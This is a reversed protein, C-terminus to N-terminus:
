LYHRKQVQQDARLSNYKLAPRYLNLTYTYKSKLLLDPNPMTAGQFVLQHPM